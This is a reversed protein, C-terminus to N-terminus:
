CARAWRAVVLEAVLDEQEKDLERRWMALREERLHELVEVKREVEVLVRRQAEVSVELQARLGSLRLQERRVYRRYSDLAQLEQIPALPAQPSPRVSLEARQVASELDARARDLQKLGALLAQLRAEEKDREAERWRRLQELRFSFKKL